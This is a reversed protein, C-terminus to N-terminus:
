IKNYPETITDGNDDEYIVSLNSSNLTTIEAQGSRQTTNLTLVNGAITYAGTGQTRTSCDAGSFETTTFNVDTAFSFTFQL